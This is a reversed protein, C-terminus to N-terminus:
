AQVMLPPEMVESALALVAFTVQPLPLLPLRFTTSVFLLPQLSEEVTEMVIFGSGDAVTPDAVVIHLPLEALMPALEVLPCVYLQVLLGEPYVEDLLLGVTLGDEVVVYLSVSVMVEDPHVFDSETFIVTLGSGEAEVLEAVEIHEPLEVLIPAADM